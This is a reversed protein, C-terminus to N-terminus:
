EVMAIMVPALPNPQDSIRQVLVGPPTIGSYMYGWVVGCDYSNSSTFTTTSPGCERNGQGYFAQWPGERVWKAIGFTAVGLVTATGAGSSPISNVIPVIVLRDECGPVGPEAWKALGAARGDPDYGSPFLPTAAVDCTAWTSSPFRTALGASTNQGLSGPQIEISVSTGQTFFGSVSSGAVCAQYNDCARIIGTNGGGGEKFGYLRDPKLGWPCTEFPGNCDEPDNFDGDNNYDVQCIVGPVCSPNPAVVAWPMVRATPLPGVMASAAASIRVYDVGALKSFFGRSQRGVCVRLSNATQEYCTREFGGSGNRALWSDVVSQVQGPSNILYASGALVATDAQNQAERHDFFWMGVDFTVSFLMFVLGLMITMMVASQGTDERYVRSVLTRLLSSLM